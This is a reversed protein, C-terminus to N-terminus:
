RLFRLTLCYCKFIDCLNILVEFDHLSGRSEGCILWCWVQILPCNVATVRSYYISLLEIIM